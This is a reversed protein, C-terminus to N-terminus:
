IRDLIVPANGCRRNKLTGRKQSLTKALWKSHMFDTKFTLYPSLVLSVSYAPMLELPYM